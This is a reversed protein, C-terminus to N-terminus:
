IDVIRSPEAVGAPSFRLLSSGITFVATNAGVGIALSLAATLSFLPYRRLLRLGYRIDQGLTDLSAGTRVDRVQEKISEIGGLEAFAARRAADPSQGARMKEAALLEVSARLEDDLERDVRDRRMLNRWLSALRSFFTM